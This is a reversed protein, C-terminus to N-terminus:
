PVYDKVMAQYFYWVRDKTEYMAVGGQPRWGELIAENVLDELESLMGDAYCVKYCM